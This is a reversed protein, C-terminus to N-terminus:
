PRHTFAWHVEAKVWRSTIASDSLVVVFWESSELGLRIQREWEDPARIEDKSYWADVEAKAFLPLLKAEVFTRDRSSHSVFVQTRKASDTSMNQRNGKFM